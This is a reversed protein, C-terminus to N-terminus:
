EELILVPTFDVGDAAAFRYTVGNRRGQFIYERGADHIHGFVCIKVGYQELLDTFGSSQGRRNYPPYHLAAVIETFGAKRASELSMQLRLLERRYIKEDHQSNFGEEGPCLWGRTGCIALSGWPFHDNQLAHLGEPLAARVKGISTWWYDHNGRILLKQGNLGALWNLDAAAEELKMAWSIDGPIITLDGDSVTRNWNQRVKQPHNDWGPGFIYMPKPRAFSLHLDGLAYVAM